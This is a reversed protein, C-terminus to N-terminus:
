MRDRAAAAVAAGAGAFVVVATAAVLPRAVPTTLVSVGLLAALPVLLLGAVVVERDPGDSDGAPPEEEAAGVGEDTPPEGPREERAFEGEGSPGGLRDEPSQRDGTPPRDSEAPPPEVTVDEGGPGPTREDVPLPETGNRRPATGDAAAEALLAAVVLLLAVALVQPGVATGAVGLLALAAAALWVVQRSGRAAAATGAAAVAVVAVALGVLFANGAALAGASEGAPTTTVPAFLLYAALEAAVLLALAAPTVVPWRRDRTTM